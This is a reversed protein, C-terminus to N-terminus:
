ADFGIAQARRQEVAAPTARPMLDFYGDGNRKVFSIANADNKVGSGFWFAYVPDDPGMEVRFGTLAGPEQNANVAVGRTDTCTTM